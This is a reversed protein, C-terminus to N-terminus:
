IEINICKIDKYNSAMEKNFADSGISVIKMDEINFHKSIEIKNNNEINNVELYEKYKEIIYSNLGYNDLTCVIIDINKDIINLLLVSSNELLVTDYNDLNINIDKNILEYFSEYTYNDDIELLKDIKTKDNLYCEKFYSIM